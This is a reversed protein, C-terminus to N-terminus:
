ANTFVDWGTHTEIWIEGTDRDLAFAGAEAPALFSSLTQYAGLDEQKVITMMGERSGCYLMGKEGDFLLGHPDVDLRIIGRLDGSLDDLIRVSKEAPVFLLQRTMDKTAVPFERDLGAILFAEGPPVPGAVRRTFYFERFRKDKRRLSYVILVMLLGFVILIKLVKEM